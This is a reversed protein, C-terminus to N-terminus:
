ICDDGEIELVQWFFIKAFEGNLQHVRILEYEVLEPKIVSTDEDGSLSAASAQAMWSLCRRFVQVNQFFLAQRFGNASKPLVGRHDLEGPSRAKPQGLRHAM